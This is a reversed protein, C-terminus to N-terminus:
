KNNTIQESPERGVVLWCGVVLLWCGVVLLWCGVVLLDIMFRATFPWKRIFYYLNNIQTALVSM